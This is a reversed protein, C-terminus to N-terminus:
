ERHIWSRTDLETHTGDQTESRTHRARHGMGHGVGHMDWKTHGMKYTGSRHRVGNSGSWTDKTNTRQIRKENNPM